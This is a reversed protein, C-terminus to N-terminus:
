WVDGPRWECSLPADLDLEPTTSTLRVMVNGDDEATRVPGTETRVYTPGLWVRWGLREYFGTLGTDLAGLPFATDIYRSVERMVASGLERRQYSPHTAVAEVYGTRLRQEGAHLEREVVSAHSVIRGDVDVVFHLGGMAHERDDETFAEPDDAWAADFLVRLYAFEEATLEGTPVARVPAETMKEPGTM